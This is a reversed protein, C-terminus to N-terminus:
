PKELAEALASFTSPKAEVDVALGRERCRASTAPGISAMVLGAYPGAGDSSLGALDLFADVSNPSSFVVIAEKRTVAGSSRAANLWRVLDPGRADARESRYVAVDEVHHGAERLMKPLEERAVEARALLIRANGDGLQERMEEALGEGHTRSPPAVLDPMRGKRTLAAATAPGVCAIRTDAFDDTSFDRGLFAAVGHASTFVLWDYHGAKVRQRAEEVRSPDSPPGLTALAIQTVEAGREEFFHRAPPDQGPEFVDQAEPRLLLVRKGSLVGHLTVTCVFCSM